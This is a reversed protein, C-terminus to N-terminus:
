SSSFRFREVLESPSLAADGFRMAARGDRAANGAQKVRLWGDVRHTAPIDEIFPSANGSGRRYESHSITVRRMGRTLAVYALRREEAFDGYQSPVVRVEWAPLFVHTFELGKARHLTMMSVQGGAHEEDPGNTALAAHDLLDRASHFSGALQILEQINELRGETSEARSARLMARYGTGDLLLSLQDAVTADTNAGIARVQDAFKLGEARARPPLAATEIARLLSVRRWAAEAELTEIAKPGFARPPVNIVRRVAEDSQPEDPACAIRLLALADKIEARQYFGVDGILVYPIKAHMMAEEFGRSLFNSRYLIAIDSWKLGDALRRQIEAAIGRAEEEGDRFKVVEIPDGPEKTTFLTKVIRHRDYSIVANAAGLIHSTSRFNEELKIQAAGPFDTAFRRIYGLDAGRWSYISQDDDGVVFLQKHDAALLRLWRYQAFCVDQYEDGHLCDFRGAWRQRYTENDQMARTPWLLLDGFDAANAERLRRQYDVYVAAATRLAHTDLPRDDRRSQAIMAEASSAAESPAILNDKFKSIANVVAKLPDKGAARPEDGGGALNMAKMCRKIVRRSDDADLIDFGPRLGAVEPETRLQRAGLGHFTGVWRLGTMTGLTAQIRDSMEKAAKNTFTVALIRSPDIGSIMIRRAVAATLTRTKGTGAGALVLVPGDKNAAQLQNPTLGDLFGLRPNDLM